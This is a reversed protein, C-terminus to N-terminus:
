NRAALVRDRRRGRELLHRTITAGAAQLRRLGRRATSTEMLHVCPRRQARHAPAGGRELDFGTVLLGAPRHPLAYTRLLLEEEASDYHTM